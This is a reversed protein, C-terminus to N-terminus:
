WCSGSSYGFYMPQGHRLTEQEECYNRCAYGSKSSLAEKTPPETLGARSSDVLLNTTFVHIACKCRCTVSSESGLSISIAGFQVACLILARSLQIKM